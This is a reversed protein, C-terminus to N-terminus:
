PILYNFAYGPKVFCVEGKFGLNEVDKRLIVKQFARTFNRQHSIGLLSTYPLLKFSRNAFM